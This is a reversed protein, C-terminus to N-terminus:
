ETDIVCYFTGTALELPQNSTNKMPIHGEVWCEVRMQLSSRLDKAAPYNFPFVRVDHTLEGIPASIIWSGNNSENILDKMNKYVTDKVAIVNNYPTGVYMYTTFHLAPFGSQINTSFQIEAQLMTLVKGAAPTLTFISTTAYRYTVTVVDEAANASLFTVSGSEYNMTFDTGETKTVGNVKVVPHYSVVANENMFRGHKCDIINTHALTYTLHDGSDTATEDTVLTSKGWWTCPDAFNHTVITDSSGRRPETSARLNGFSDTSANIINITM